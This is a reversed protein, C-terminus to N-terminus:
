TDNPKMETIEDGIIGRTSKEFTRVVVRKSFRVRAQKSKSNRRPSKVGMNPNLNLNADTETQMPIPPLSSEVGAEDPLAQTRVYKTKSKVFKDKSKHTGGTCLAVIACIIFLLIYGLM